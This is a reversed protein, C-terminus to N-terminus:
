RLVLVQAAVALRPLRRRRFGDGGCRGGCCGVAPGGMGPPPLMMGGAGPAGAAAGGPTGVAPVPSHAGSTALGCAGCCSSGVDGWGDSEGGSFGYRADVASERPPLASTVGAAMSGRSRRLLISWGLGPCIQRVLYGQRPRLWKCAGGAGSSLTSLPIVAVSAVWAEVLCGAVQVKRV